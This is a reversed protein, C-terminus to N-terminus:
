TVLIIFSTSYKGGDVLQSMRFYIYIYLYGRREVFSRVLLGDRLSEPWTELLRKTYSHVRLPPERVVPFYLSLRPGQM